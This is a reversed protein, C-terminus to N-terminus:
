APFLPSLYTYSSATSVDPVNLRDNAIDLESSLEDIKQNIATLEQEHFEDKEQLETKYSERDSTLKMKLAKIEKKVKQSNVCEERIANELTEITIKSEKTHRASSKHQSVVAAQLKDCDNTLAAIKQQLDGNEKKHASVSTSLDDVKAQLQDNKATLDATKEQLHELDSTLKANAVSAENAKTIAEAYKNQEAALKQQLEVHFANATTLKKREAVVEDKLTNVAVM